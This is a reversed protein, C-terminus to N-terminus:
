HAAQVVAGASVPADGAQAEAMAALNRLCRTMIRQVNFRTLPRLFPTLWYPVYNHPRVECTYTIVTEGDATDLSYRNEFSARWLPRRKRELASDTHFAFAHGPTAETIVSDDHFTGMPIVGTSTFQTGAVARDVAASLNLLRFSKEGTQEGGWVVHSSLDALTAYVADRSARTRSTSRFTLIPREGSATTTDM